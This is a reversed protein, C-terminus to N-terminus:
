QRVFKVTHRKGNVIVQVYYVGSSLGNINVRKNLLRSEKQTFESIRVSGKADYIAITTRGTESSNLAVNLMDHVPNPYLSVKLKGPSQTEITSEDLVAGGGSNVTVKVTDYTVANDEDTVKIRYYYIGAILNKFIPNLANANPYITSGAPGSVKEWIFSPTPGDPDSRTGYVRVSDVPLAITQDAGADAIPPINGNVTIMVTDYDILADSDTVKFKFHYVGSTLHKLIPNLANQNPYITSNPPGDIYSWIWTANPKDDLAEGYVRVSDEPLTLVQDVGASASPPTNPAAVVTLQMTDYDIANDNDTVKINFHYTGAALDKMIPNQSSANPFITANSPGDVQQWLYSTITGPSADSSTNGYIRISDVPLTITQDAGARATPPTNNAQLVSIQLTDSTVASQSDTVKFRFHYVGKQLNKMIPNQASANPYITPTGPGDIYEWVSPVTVGDEFDSKIGYVRISDLPFTITTDNGAYATPPHNGGTTATIVLDSSGAVTSDFGARDDVVILRFTYTGAVSLGSVNTIPNTSVPNEITVNAGAPASIKKWVYRVITGPSVDSSGSADLTTKAVNIPISKNSGRNATPLSNVALHKDQGLFWEYINLFGEYGYPKFRPDDM